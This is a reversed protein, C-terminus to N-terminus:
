FEVDFASDACFSSGYVLLPRRADLVSRGAHDYDAGISPTRWGLLPDYLGVPQFRQEATPLFLRHLKWYDDSWPDSFLEPRRLNWRQAREVLWDRESFLVQRLFLEALVPGALLSLLLLAWRRMSRHPRANASRRRASAM